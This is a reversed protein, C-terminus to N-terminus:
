FSGQLALGRGTPSVQLSLSRNWALSTVMWVGGVAMMAYGTSNVVNAAVWDPRSVFPDLETYGWSGAAILGGAATLSLPLLFSRRSAPSPFVLPQADAPRTIIPGRPSSMPPGSDVVTTALATQAQEPETEGWQLRLFAGIAAQPIGYSGQGGADAGAQWSVLGAFRGSPEVLVGSFAGQPLDHDTQILRQGEWLLYSSVMGAALSRSFESSTPVGIAWIEGGLSAQKEIPALCPYQGGPLRLLAVDHAMDAREVTADLIIGSATTVQVENHGELFWATTLVFGDPSTLYGAAHQGEARVTVIAPLLSETDKPLQLVAATCPTLMRVQDWGASDHPSGAPQQAVATLTTVLQLAVTLM